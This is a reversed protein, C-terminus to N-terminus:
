AERVKRDLFKQAFIVFIAKLNYMYSHCIDVFILLILQILPM